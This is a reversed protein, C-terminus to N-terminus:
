SIIRRKRSRIFLANQFDVIVGIRVEIYTDSLLVTKDEAMVAFDTGPYDALHIGWAQFGNIAM